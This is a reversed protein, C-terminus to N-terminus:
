ISDALNRTEINSPLLYLKGRVPQAPVEYLEPSIPRVLRQYTAHRVLLGYVGHEKGLGYMVTAHGEPDADVLLVRHGNVALGAAIHVAVTTKGVGGKENLLTVVKM